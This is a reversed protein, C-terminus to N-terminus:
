IYLSRTVIDALLNLSLEKLFELGYQGIKSAASLLKNYNKQKVAQKSETAFNKLVPSDTLKLLENLENEIDDWKLCSYPNKIITNQAYRGTSIVGNNENINFKISM